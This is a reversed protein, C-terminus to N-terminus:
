VMEGKAVLVVKGGVQVHCRDEDDSARLYLLSPRGIEYGQESVVDISSTQLVQYRCLYAALCGNASGTAPDEPVGVSEAFMRGNVAHNPDYTECSFCYAFDAGLSPLLAAEVERDIRARRVANLNVLPIILFPLGTSVTLVPGVEAIDAADLRLLRAADEKSAISGFTPANQTMWLLGSNEDFDVPILGAEMSLVIRPVAQKTVLERLVWATGLTPHGAFPVERMPTFIRVAYTHPAIPVPNIFTTESYNMERAIQQMLETTLATGDLFVALQNGCFKQEAFVDVTVYSLAQM